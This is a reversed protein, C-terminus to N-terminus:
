IDECTGEIAVMYQSEISSLAVSRQKMNYWSITTSEISFIGRSTSKRDSPIGVWYADTFGQLKVGEKSKYWIGFLTTGRLYRLVHKSAKWYLKTTKVMSQSLQNVAYCMDSRTNVLYMLSGVLRRYVTADM